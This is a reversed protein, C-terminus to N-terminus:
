KNKKMKRKKQNLDRRRPRAKGVMRVTCLILLWPTVTVLV